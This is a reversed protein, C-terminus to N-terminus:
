QNCNALAAKASGKGWDPNITPEDPQKEFIDYAKQVNACAEEFGTGFFQATGYQMQGMFLLARPNQSDLALAQQYLGFITPSLTQGRTAPDVTLRLMQVFGELAVLEANKDIKQAKQILGLAANLTVEKTDVNPDNSAMFSMVQAQYYLPLWQDTEKQAIREFYNITNQYDTITDLTAIMKKGKLIASEFKSQGFALSITLAACITLVQRM